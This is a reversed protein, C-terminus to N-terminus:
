TQSGTQMAELVKAVNQNFDTTSLKNWEVSGDGTGGGVTGGNGMTIPADTNSPNDNTDTVSATEGLLTHFQKVADEGSLGQAMLATVFMRNFPKDKNAEELTDLEKEFEELEAQEREKRREEETSSQLTDLTQKMAVFEPIKTLDVKTDDNEFLDGTDTSSGAAEAVAKDLEDKTLLGLKWNENIQQAVKAPERQLEDAFVVSQWAFDATVNNEVFPKFAKLPEYETHIQQFKEQVGKDWAELEPIVLQHLAPPLKDLIGKWAPNIDTM